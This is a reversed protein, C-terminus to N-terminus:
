HECYTKLTDLVGPWGGKYDERAKPEQALGSHTLKLKTGVATPTFELRVISAKAPQEHFNAHWTYVLLHPPDFELIQGHHVHERASVKEKTTSRWAGGLRLDMAWDTLECFDNASWRRVQAEETFAQFVRSLPAAIEIECVIADQDPAIM